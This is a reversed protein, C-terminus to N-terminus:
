RVRDIEGAEVLARIKQLGATDGSQLVYHKAPTATSSPAELEQEPAKQRVPPLEDCHRPMKKPPSQSSTRSARGSREAVHTSETIQLPLNAGSWPDQIQLFSPLAPLALM